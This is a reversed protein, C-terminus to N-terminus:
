ESPTVSNLRKIIQHVTSPHWHAKNKRFTPVKRRNLENAIARITKFGKGRLEDIVPRMSLAFRTAELRNAKSLVYRGHNGLEVGKRKAARLAATTRESIQDREYEAFAAMIHVILKGAYPNDVARFDVKSEMLKSIFAVNRGLRDLKAILLIAHDRKCAELAEQLVPRSNRKGSEVEIFEGSLSYGHLRIFDSVAKQQASLGLGSKGQRQTSVRYYSIVKMNEPKPVM